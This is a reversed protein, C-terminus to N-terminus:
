IRKYLLLATMMFGLSCILLLATSSLGQLIMGALVSAIPIMGQSGMNVISNVKGLKDKDVSRMLGTTIRINITSIILGILFGTLCLLILFGNLSRQRDVMIWYSITLVLLMVGIRILGVTIKNGYQEESDKIGMFAAGLFSSTGFCINFVSAWLEPTLITDLLYSTGALDTKIFYPIFNGTLPTLFFNMFLIACLLATITRKTKLYRIGDQMDQFVFNLTLHEKSPIYEYRIFMESIGSILFMLGVLIFLTYIPWLAYLIGAMIIGLINELSTKMAFYANAQQLQNTDVIHVLLSGSAPIFIGSIINSLIGLMFLILIQEKASTVMLLMAALIILGGKLYDCIYMIKAKNFRDALVGGIPTFVLMAVGCMGLYMGQLLANNSSIELIYFSVAFNYLIAGLESILAGMFVLLYNKNTFINNNM